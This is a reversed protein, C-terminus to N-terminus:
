KGTGPQRKQKSLLTTSLHISYLNLGVPWGVVGNLSVSM